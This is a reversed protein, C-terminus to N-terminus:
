RDQYPEQQLAQQIRAAIAEPAVDALVQMSAQKYIPMRESLLNEVRTRLAEGKLGFLLPRDGGKREIRDLLMGFPVDLFVVQGSNLMRLMNDGECPTGGGTSIILDDQELSELLVKRELTRFAAEGNAQFWPTIPGIRQEILRDIDVHRLGMGRALERGVHSKGSCMFGILFVRM